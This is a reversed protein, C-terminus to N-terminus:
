ADRLLKSAHKTLPQALEPYDGGDIRRLLRAVVYLQAVRGTPTDLVDAFLTHVTEAIEPVLLSYCLLTAADTGAPGRGWLEWDLVGFRPQMLNSWHLDGHVTVWKTVTADVAAGFRGHIRRSVRAQDAHTRETSTAALSDLSRRLGTLWAKSLDPASRLIDTQSCPGGPVVTMVEVRQHRWDQESWEFVDIVHPKTLDSISNADLNGTWGCGRAWQAEESVVRLWRMGDRGAAPAGISRLRWGFLPTGTVTVEFHDAARAINHRMFNRFVADADTPPEAALFDSM